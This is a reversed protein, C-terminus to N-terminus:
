KIARTIAFYIIISVIFTLAGFMIQFNILSKDEFGFYMFMLGIAGLFAPLIFRNKTQATLLKANRNVFYQLLEAKEECSNKCCISYGLDKLCDHCLAKNCARCIGVADVSGHNFCKM